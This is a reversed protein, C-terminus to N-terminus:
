ISGACLAHGPRQNQHEFVLAMSAFQHKSAKVRDMAMLDRKDGTFSLTRNPTAAPITVTTTCDVGCIIDIM